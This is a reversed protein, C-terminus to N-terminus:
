SMIFPKRGKKKKATAKLTVATQLVQNLSKKARSKESSKKGTSADRQVEASGKVAAAKSKSRTAKPKSGGLEKAPSGQTSKPNHTSKSASKNLGKSNGRTLGVGGFREFDSTVLRFDIKRGDLDV